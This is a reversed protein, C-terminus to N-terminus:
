RHFLMERYKPLPWFSDDVLDELQDVHKRLEARSPIVEDRC